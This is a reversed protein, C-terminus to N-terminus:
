GTPFTLELSGGPLVARWRALLQAVTARIQALEDDTIVHPQPAGPLQAFQAALMANTEDAMQPELSGAREGDLMGALHEALMADAMADPPIPGRPWPTGFDTIEWGRYNLLGYFALRLGLTTEIAYHGLDHPVFFFGHKQRQGTVTGDDRVCTLTTTDDRKKTFRILM